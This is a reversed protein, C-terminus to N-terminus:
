VVWKPTRASGHEVASESSSERGSRAWERSGRRIGGLTVAFPALWILRSQYRDHPNSLAGCILANGLLGALVFGLFVAADHERRWAAFGLLGTLGLLSLDGVPVHVLNIDHFRLLGRQQRAAMYAQVQHPTFAAFVSHLAWQQPEVQDGTRFSVFQRAGDLFVLKVNLLPYRKLSDMVIRASEARTGAFGGLKFFPSYPAWLWADGRPPLVDKYACLRYGARPCTDELLRMVVGDQLLRGFLFNPGARNLFIERTFSFNAAVALVFAFALATAPKLSDARPWGAAAWIDALVIGARYVAVLTVLLVGLVLHSPHVAIAFSAIGILITSRLRGLAAPRFALLYVALVLVATFCDPQIEGVYWGIGTAVVLAASLALFTFLSLTPTFSRATEVMVFGTAGAQLLVVPWLSAGAGALRLFLSYVSSREALFHGGLGELLYAGTDYFVIPFGNWIAISLLLPVLCVIAAAEGLPRQLRLRGTVRAWAAMGRYAFRANM